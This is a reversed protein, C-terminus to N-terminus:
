GLATFGLVRLFARALISGPWRPACVQAAAQHAAHRSVCDAVMAVCAADRAALEEEAAAQRVASFCEFPWLM